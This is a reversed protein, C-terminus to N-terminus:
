TPQLAIPASLQNNGPGVDIDAHGSQYAAISVTVTQMGQAVNPIVFGGNTDTARTALTGTCSVLAGAIPKQTVSDVVVGTVTGYVQVGIANPNVCGSLPMSGLLGALVLAAQTRRM